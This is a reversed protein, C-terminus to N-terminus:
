QPRRFLGHLHFQVRQKDRSNKLATYATDSLSSLHPELELIAKHARPAIEIGIDALLLFPNAMFLNAGNRTASIRRVIEREHQFLQALTDIRLWPQAFSKIDLQKEDSIRTLLQRKPTGPPLGEVATSSKTM